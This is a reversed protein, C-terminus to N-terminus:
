NRKREMPLVGPRGRSRQTGGLRMILRSPHTKPSFAMNRSRRHSARSRDLYESRGGPPWFSSPYRIGGDGAENDHGNDGRRRFPSPKRGTSRWPKLPKEEPVLAEFERLKRQEGKKIGVASSTQHKPRKSKGPSKGVRKKWHGTGRRLFAASAELVQNQMHVQAKLHSYCLLFLIARSFKKKKIFGVEENTLPASPIVGCFYDSSQNSRQFTIKHSSRDIVWEKLKFFIFVCNLLDLKRCMVSKKGATKRCKLCKAPLSMTPFYKLFAIANNNSLTCM